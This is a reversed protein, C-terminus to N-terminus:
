RAANLVTQFLPREITNERPLGVFVLTGGRRLSSYAQEVAKPTAATTIVADAGGIERIAAAPDELPANVSYTAGLEKAMQLKDDQVDVAVVTAGAIRAYQVAM